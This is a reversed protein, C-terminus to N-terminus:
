IKKLIIKENEKDVVAKYFEKLIDYDDPPVISTTVELAATLQIQSDTNTITYNFTGYKMQMVLAISKPLSEVQFGEPIIITASFKNRFPFSFDVPYERTDQKFPNESIAYCLMPSFYIKDGIVESSGATKITYKEVISENDAPNILELDYIELQKHTKEIKEVIEDHTLEGLNERYQLASYDLYQERVKGAIQGKNDISVVTNVVDFSTTKPMLDVMDSTGDKKILRGFWNLDRIPLIAPLSFKSTADLLVLNGNVMVSAIVFNFATRSPFLSIGNSRTSVLVPNADLNAYRLMSVLMLNIEASNGVKDQYAKKVGDYCSYSYHKNWNMRSQVYKFISATKEETSLTDNLVAKLDDEYYNTKELQDGFYESENISQAVDEWTVSFMEVTSNPFKVGSVEHQLISAYNNINNVFSEEKLAPINELSYVTRNDIYSLQDIDHRYPNNKLKQKYQWSNYDQSFSIFKNLKDKTEKIVASGKRFVNYFLYEPIDTTFESYNVPIKKQFHWDRLNSIYPTKITYKYEVISGEKVNPMSIKQVRFSKNIEEIFVNEAKAKTKQVEGNVLNYTVANSFEVSEKSSSGLYFPIKENGWEYGEKKYIKIKVEVVTTLSFNTGNFDISVKGKNFLIAASATSDTPCKKEKLEEITVNGLEHNQAFSCACELLLFALYFFVNVKFVIKNVKYKKLYLKKM